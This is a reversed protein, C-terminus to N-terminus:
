AVPSNAKDLVTVAITNLDVHARCAFELALQYTAAAVVADALADTVTIGGLGHVLAQTWRTATMTLRALNRPVWGNATERFSRPTLETAALASGLTLFAASILLDTALELYTLTDQDGLNLDGEPLETVEAPGLARLADILAATRVTYADSM